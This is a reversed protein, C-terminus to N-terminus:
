ARDGGLEQNEAEIGIGTFCPRNELRRRIDLRFLSWKGGKALQGLTLRPAEFGPTSGSNENRHRKGVKRVQTMSHRALDANRKIRHASIVARGDDDGAGFQSQLAMGFALEQKEAIGAQDRRQEVGPRFQLGRRPENM